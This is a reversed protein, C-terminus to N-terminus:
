VMEIYINKKSNVDEICMCKNNLNKIYMYKNNKNINKIYISTKNNNVKGIYFYM